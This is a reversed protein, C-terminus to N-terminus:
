ASTEGSEATISTPLVYYYHHQQYYVVLFVVMLLLLLQLVLSCCSSFCYDYYKLPTMITKMMLQNSM